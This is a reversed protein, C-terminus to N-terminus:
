ESTQYSDQGTTGNDTGPHEHGAKASHPAPWGRATSVDGSDTPAQPVSVQLVLIEKLASSSVRDNASRSVCGWLSPPPSVGSFMVEKQKM